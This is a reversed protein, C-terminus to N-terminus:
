IFTDMNQIEDRMSPVISVSALSKIGRKQIDNILSEIDNMDKSDYVIGPFNGKLTSELIDGAISCNQESRIGMYFKIKQGDSDIILAVSSNLSHLASYVSMLKDTFKENADFVLKSIEILRLKSTDMVSHNPLIISASSFSDLYSRNLYIDAVQFGQALQFQTIKRQESKKWKQETESYKTVQAM